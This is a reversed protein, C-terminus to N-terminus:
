ESELGPIDLVGERCPLKLRFVPKSLNVILSKCLNSVSALCAASSPCSPLSLSACNFLSTRRLRLRLGAARSPPLPFRKDNTCGSVDVELPPDTSQRPGVAVPRRHFRNETSQAAVPTSGVVPQSFSSGSFSATLLHCHAGSQVWCASGGIKPTHPCQRQHPPHHLLDSCVFRLYSYRLIAQTVRPPKRRVPLEAPAAAVASTELYVM